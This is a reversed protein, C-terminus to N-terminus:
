VGVEYGCIIYPPTSHHGDGNTEWASNLLSGLVLPRLTKAIKGSLSRPLLRRQPRVEVPAKCADLASGPRVARRASKYQGITGELGMNHHHQRRRCGGVDLQRQRRLHSIGQVMTHGKATESNQAQNMKKQVLPKLEPHQTAVSRAWLAYFEEQLAATNAGVMYYEQYARNRCSACPLQDDQDSQRLSGVCIEAM